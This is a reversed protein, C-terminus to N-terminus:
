YPVVQFMQFATTDKAREDYEDITGQHVSKVEMTLTLGEVPAEFPVQIWQPKTLEPLSVSGVVTNDVYITLNRPYGHFEEGDSDPGVYLYIGSYTQKEDGWVAISLGDEPLESYLMGSRLVMGDGGNAAIIVDALETRALGSVDTGSGTTTASKFPLDSEPNLYMPQGDSGLMGAYAYKVGVYGQGAAYGSGDGAEVYEMFTNENQTVAAEQPTNGMIRPNLQVVAYAISSTLAVVAVIIGFVAAKSRSRKRTKLTSQKLDEPKAAGDVSKVANDVPEFVAVSEPKFRSNTSM